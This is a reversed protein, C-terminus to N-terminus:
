YMHGHKARRIIKNFLIKSFSERGQGPLRKIYDGSIRQIDYVDFSQHSVTYPKKLGNYAMLYGSQKLLTKVIRGSQNWPYAFHSVTHGILHNEIMEKSLILEKHIRTKQEEESEFYGFYKNQDRFRYANRKLRYDWLLHHFIYKKAQNELVCYEQVRHDPFYQLDDTLGSSYTYIPRGTGNIFSDEHGNGEMRPYEWLTRASKSSYYFRTIKSSTFIAPHKFSHSQFDIIGSQYMEQIQSWNALGPTGVWDPIIFAVAKLHYKRLLPYAVQYINDLGDDFTLVVLRDDIMSDQLCYNYEDTSLTKYGNDILFRLQEDFEDHHVKHFCFVPIQNPMCRHIIFPPYWGRIFGRIMLTMEYFLERQLSMM